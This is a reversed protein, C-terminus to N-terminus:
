LRVIDAEQDIKKGYILFDTFQNAMYPGLSVGKTGLGNFIGLPKYDPHLGIFPRRDRTAPRIGAKQDIVQYDMDIVKELKQVLMKKALSTIHSDIQMTEYTAGVKYTGKEVPLIFIDRSIINNIEVPSSITLIEGKVPRFPLWEFFRNTVAKAGQCFIIKKAKIGKYEVSDEYLSLSNEDFKEELYSSRKNLYNKTKILLTRIDVYGSPHLEVGGYNDKLFNGPLPSLSLQKIFPQYTAESSRGMWDNQEQVTVFPRYLPVFHVLKHDFMQELKRYYSVLYPFLQGAKWTLVQRKGTVPNFIGAAVWSASDERTQNIVMVKQHREILQLSLFSGALGQGVILYDVQM